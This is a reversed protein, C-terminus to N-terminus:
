LGLAASWEKLTPMTGAPGTSRRLLSRVHASQRADLGPIGDSEQLWVRPETEAPLLTLWVIRAFGQRDEDLSGRGDNGLWGGSGLTRAHRYDVPTLEIGTDSVLILEPDIQGNVIGSEHQASLWAAVARLVDLCWSPLVDERRKVIETTLTRHSKVGAASSGTLFGDQLATAFYGRPRGADDVLVEDPWRADLRVSGVVSIRPRRDVLDQAAKHARRVSSAPLILAERGDDISYIEVGDATRVRPEQGELLLGQSIFVELDRGLPRAAGGGPLDDPVAFDFGSSPVPIQELRQRVAADASLDRDTSSSAKARQVRWRWAALCAILVAMGAAAWTAWPVGFWQPDSLFARTSEWRESM